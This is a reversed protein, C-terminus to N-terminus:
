SSRITRQEIALLGAVLLVASCAVLLATGEGDFGSNLPDGGLAWHWPSLRAWDFELDALPLLAHLVYGAAIVAFAVANVASARMGIGALALVLSAQLMGLLFVSLTVAAIGAPEIEMDFWPATIWITAGTVAAIGALVLFVAVFRSIYVQMRSVPLALLLELRGADEDAATLANMQVTGLVAFLLPMFVAYLNGNLFGAPSGFDNLGLSSIVEPPLGAFISELSGSGSMSPWLAVVSATLAILCICWIVAARRQTAMARTFLELKM